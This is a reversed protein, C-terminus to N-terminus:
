QSAIQVVPDVEARLKEGLPHVELSRMTTKILNKWILDFKYAKAANWDAIERRQGNSIFYAPGGSSHQVLEGDKFGVPDGMPYTNLTEETVPNARRKGFQSKYIQKSPVVHRIGDQVFFIVGTSRSQMLRGSPYINETTILEGKIYEALDEAGVKVIEERQFGAAAFTKMGAIPRVTDDVLLFMVGNPTRLLSYNAYKISRGNEYFFLQDNSVPIVSTYSYRSLFAATSVFPRKVGNQILYITSNGKARLLSGDPYLRRYSFNYGNWISWFGKNGGPHPTYTYLASTAANVPTINVKAGPQCIGRLRVPYWDSDICTITKTIGPGWYSITFGEEAIKDLYRRYGSAALSIQKSLGRYQELYQSGFYCRSSDECWGYFLLWEAWYEPSGQCPWTTGQATKVVCGSPKSFSTRSLMSTEKQITTLLVRPSIRYKIAAEFILQAATKKVGDSDTVSYHKLIGSQLDLFEQIKAASLSTSDTFEADSVIFDKNFEAAQSPLPSLSFLLAATLIAITIQIKGM